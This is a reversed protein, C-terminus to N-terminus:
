EGTLTDDIKAIANRIADFMTMGIENIECGKSSRLVCHVPTLMQENLELYSLSWGEPIDDIAAQLDSVIDKEKLANITDWDILFGDPDIGNNVCFTRATTAGTMFLNKYLVWNAMTKPAKMISRAGKMARAKHYDSM